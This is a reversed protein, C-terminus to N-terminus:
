EPGRLEWRNGAPDRVIIQPPIGPRGDSVRHETGAATLRAGVEALEDTTLEIALHARAAPVHDPDESLHIQSGDAGEFWHPTFGLDVIAAAPPLEAYGLVDTLFASEADLGGPPFALNVHHHRM